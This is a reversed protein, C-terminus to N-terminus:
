ADEAARVFVPREDWPLEANTAYLFVDGLRRSLDVDIQM